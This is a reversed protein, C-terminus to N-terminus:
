HVTRIYEKGSGCLVVQIVVDERDGEDVVGGGTAVFDFEVVEGRRGSSVKFREAALIQAGRFHVFKSLRKVQVSGVVRSLGFPVTAASLGSTHKRDIM